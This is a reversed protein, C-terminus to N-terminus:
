SKPCGAALRSGSVVLDKIQSVNAVAPRAPCIQPNQTMAIAAAELYYQDGVDWDACSDGLQGLQLTVQSSETELRALVHQELSEVTRTYERPAGPAVPLCALNAELVSNCM